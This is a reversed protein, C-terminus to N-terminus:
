PEGEERPLEQTELSRPESGRWAGPRMKIAFFLFAIARFHRLRDSRRHTSYVIYRLDKILGPRQGRQPPFSSNLAVM